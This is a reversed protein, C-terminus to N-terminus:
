RGTSGFGSTGRETVGGLEDESDVIVVKFPELAPECLQVIRQEKELIGNGSVDLAAGIFGRYGRDIIGANNALRFSTKFISSRPYLYFASPVDDNYMACKIKYNVLQTSTLTLTEPAFLDFGSDCYQTKMFKENHKLAAEKYLDKLDSDVFLRLVKMIIM